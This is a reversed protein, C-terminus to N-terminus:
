IGEGKWNGEEFREQKGDQDWEGGDEAFGKGEEKEDTAKVLFKREKGQVVANWLWTDAEVWRM